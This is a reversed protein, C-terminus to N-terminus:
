LEQTKPKKKKLSEPHHVREVILGQDVMMKHLKLREVRLYIGTMAELIFLAGLVGGFQIINWYDDMFPWLWTVSVVYAALIYAGLLCWLLTVELTKLKVGM